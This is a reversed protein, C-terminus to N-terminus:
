DTDDHTIHEKDLPDLITIEQDLIMPSKEGPVHMANLAQRLLEYVSYQKRKFNTVVGKRFTKRVNSKSVSVMAAKYNGTTHTGSGDNAIYVEGLTKKGTEGGFPLLEITVRIM